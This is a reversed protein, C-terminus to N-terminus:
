ALEEVEVLVDDHFVVPLDSRDRMQILAMLDARRMHDPLTQLTNATLVEVMEGSKKLRSIVEECRPCGEQTYVTYKM